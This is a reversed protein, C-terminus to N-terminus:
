QRNVPLAWSGDAIERIHKSILDVEWDLIVMEARSDKSKNGASWNNYIVVRGALARTPQFNDDLELFYLENKALAGKRLYIWTKDERMDFLVEIAGGKFEFTHIEELRHPRRVHEKLALSQCAAGLTAVVHQFLVRGSRDDGPDSM